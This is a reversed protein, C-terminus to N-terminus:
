GLGGVAGAHLAAWVADYRALVLPAARDGLPEVVAWGRRSAQQRLPDLLLGDALFLPCVAVPGPAAALRQAARPQCTCFGVAVEGDREADLRRALDTVAANAEPRSSGVAVLLVSGGADPDVDALAGLVVQAVDDGTGLIDALRLTMGSAATAAALAQPVDVRAHFAETFLLPVVVAATHGAASLEVCVTTLDPEVLDLYAARAPLGSRAAVADMLAAVAARGRPHRSGHALGIVPVSTPFASGGATAPPEPQHTM